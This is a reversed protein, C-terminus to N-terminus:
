IQSNVGAKFSGLGIKEVKKWVKQCKPIVVFSMKKEYGMDFKVASFCETQFINIFIHSNITVMVLSVCHPIYAVAIYLNVEYM